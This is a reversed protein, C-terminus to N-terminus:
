LEDVGDCQCEVMQKLDELKGWVGWSRRCKKYTAPYKKVTM